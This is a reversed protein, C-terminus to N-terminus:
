NKISKKTDLYYYYEILIKTIAFILPGLIIGVAGLFFLGGFIGVFVFSPPITDESSM